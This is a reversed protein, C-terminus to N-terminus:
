ALIIDYGSSDEHIPDVPWDSMRFVINHPFNEDDGSPIPLPGFMHSLSSPFYHSLQIEAERRKGKSHEMIPPQQLSWMKRRRAWAARILSEDIDVGVVMSAGYDQASNRPESNLRFSVFQKGIECTV